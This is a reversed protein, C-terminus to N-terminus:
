YNVLLLNDRGDVRYALNRFQTLDDQPTGEWSSGNPVWMLMGQAATNEMWGVPVGKAHYERIIGVFRDRYLRNYQDQTVQDYQQCLKIAIKREESPNPDRSDPYANPPHKEQREHRFRYFEDALRLTRHRLSDGLEPRKLVALEQRLRAIQADKAGADASPVNIRVVLPETNIEKIRTQLDSALMAFVLLLLVLRLPRNNVFRYATPHKAELVELRGFWDLYEAGLLLLALLWLALPQLAGLIVSLM